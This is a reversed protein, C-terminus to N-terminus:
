EDRWVQRRVQRDFFSGFGVTDRMLKRRAARNIPQSTM